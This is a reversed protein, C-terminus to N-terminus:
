LKGNDANIFSPPIVIVERWSISKIVPFNEQEVMATDSGTIEVLSFRGPSQEVFNSDGHFAYPAGGSHSLMEASKKRAALWLKCTRRM